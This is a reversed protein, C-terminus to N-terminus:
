GANRSALQQAHALLKRASGADAMHTLPEQDGKQPLRYERSRGPDGSRRARLAPRGPIWGHRRRWHAPCRRPVSQRGPETKGLLQGRSQGVLPQGVLPQRGRGPHQWYRHREAPCDTNGFRKKRTLIYNTDGLALVGLLGLNVRFRTHGLHRLQRRNVERSPGCGEGPDHADKHAEERARCTVSGNGPGADSSFDHTGPRQGCRSFASGRFRRSDYLYYGKSLVPM